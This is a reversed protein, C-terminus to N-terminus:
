DRLRHLLERVKTPDIHLDKELPHLDGLGTGALLWYRHGMACAVAYFNPNPFSLDAIEVIHAGPPCFMMNTLGAGHPAFLVATQRMLEVQQEFGLEEMFVREFGEAELLPWIEDENLLRRRTARARSIYVKRHAPPADLVGYAEPVLRLLEPRFRDTVLFTLEDVRLPRSPDFTTFQDPELGLMRLSGDMGATREPPMLVDDLAGRDRLLLLKPLHATLWHSHNHYVREIFWTAKKLRDPPGSRRLTEAHLPRFRVERMDLARGDGAIIAPFFDNAQAPDRYWVIRCDPITAILTQGSERAPVDRFSYGWWGRDDPLEERSDINCPLPHHAVDAPHLTECRGAARDGQHRAFHEPVTEHQVYRYGFWGAHLGSNVGARSVRYRGHRLANRVRPPLIPM